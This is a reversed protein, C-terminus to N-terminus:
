NRGIVRRFWNVCRTLIGEEEETELAAEGEEYTSEAAIMTESAGDEPEADAELTVEPTAMMWLAYALEQASAFRKEAEKDLARKLIANLRPPVDLAAPDDRLIRALTATTSAGQFPRRGAILEYLVVAASFVDSRGDLADRGIIQEPSMYEFSGVVPHDSVITRDVTGVAGLTIFNLIKATGDDTLFVNDPRVNGHVAQQEHAHHLGLCVQAILDVKTPLEAVFNPDAMLEALTRGRLREMVIYPFRNDSGQELVQVIHRHVLPTPVGAAADELSPDAAMKLVVEVESDDRVALYTTARPGRHLVEVLDYPGARSLQQKV